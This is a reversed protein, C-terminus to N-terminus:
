DKASLFSNVNEIFQEAMFDHKGRSFLKLKGRVFMLTVPIAEIPFKDAIQGSADEVVPFSLKLEDIKKLMDKRESDTNIGVILVQDKSFKKRFELLSPFEELCPQCWSAWFNLFVIPQRLDKLNLEENKITKLRLDKYVQEFHQDRSEEGRNSMAQSEVLQIIKKGTLTITILSGFLGLLVYKKIKKTM